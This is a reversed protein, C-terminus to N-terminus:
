LLRVELFATIFNESFNSSNKLESTILAKGFRKGFSTGVNLLKYNTKISGQLYMYTDKGALQKAYGYMASTSLRKGIIQKATFINEFLPGQGGYQSSRAYATLISLESGHIRIANELQWRRLFFASQSLTDVRLGEQMTCRLGHSLKVLRRDISKYGVKGTFLPVLGARRDIEMRLASIDAFWNFRGARNASIGVQQMARAPPLTQVRVYSTLDVRIRNLRKLIVGDVTRAGPLAFPNGVSYYDRSNWQGKARVQLGKGIPGQIDMGYAQGLAAPAQGAPVQSVAEWFRGANSHGLGFTSTSAYRMSVKLKQVIFAKELGMFVTQSATLKSYLSSVSAPALTSDRAMGVTPILYGGSLISEGKLLGDRYVLRGAFGKKEFVASQWNGIPMGIAAEVFLRRLKKGAALGTMPMQRLALSNYDLVQYGFRLKDDAQASVLRNDVGSRSKSTSEQLKALRGKIATLEKLKAFLSPNVNELSDRWGLDGMTRGEAYGGVSELRGLGKRLEPVPSAASIGIASISDTSLAPLELGTKPMLSDPKPIDSLGSKPLSMGHKGLSQGQTMSDPPDLDQQEYLRKFREIETISLHRELEGELNESATRLSLIQEQRFQNRSFGISFITRRQLNGLIPYVYGFKADLPLGLVLVNSQIFTSVYQGRQRIAPLSDGGTSVFESRIMLLNFNVIGKRPHYANLKEVKGPQHRFGHRGVSDKPLNQGEGIGPSLLSLMCLATLRACCFNM